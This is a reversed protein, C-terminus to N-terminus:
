KGTEAFIIERRLVISIRKWDPKLDCIGNDLDRLRKVVEELREGKAILACVILGPGVTGPKCGHSM